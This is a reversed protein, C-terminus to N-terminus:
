HRAGGPADGANGVPADNGPNGQGPNGRRVPDGGGSDGNGPEAGYPASASPLQLGLREFYRTPKAGIGNLVTVAGLAILGLLIGYEILDQGSDRVL